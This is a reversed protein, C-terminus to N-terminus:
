AGHGEGYEALLSDLRELVGELGRPDSSRMVLSARLGTLGGGPWYQLDDLALKKLFAVGEDTLGERGADFVSDVWGPLRVSVEVYDAEWDRGKIRM